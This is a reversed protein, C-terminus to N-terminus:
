HLQMEVFILETSLPILAKSFQSLCDQIIKGMEDIYAGTINLGEVIFHLNLMNNLRLVGVSQHSIHFIHLFFFRGLLLISFRPIDHLLTHIVLSETCVDPLFIRDNQWM